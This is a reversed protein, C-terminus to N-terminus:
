ARIIDPRFPKRGREVITRLLDVVSAHVSDSLGDVSLDVYGSEGDIAGCDSCERIARIEKDPTHLVEPKDLLVSLVAAIGYAAWNSVTAIVPVDSKMVPAIGSKCPCQCQRGYQFIEMMTEKLNGTGLENAADGIGITFIGRARAEEFLYDIKAVRHSIDYGRLNHYYGKMNMAPREISVVLSPQLRDILNKAEMRATKEEVPFPTVSASLRREKATRPDCLSFGLARCAAAVIGVISEETVLTSTVDFGLKFARALVAAGVPGDTEGILEPHVPYGTCILANDGKKLHQQIGQAAALSIPRGIETRAADYLRHVAGLLKVNMEVTTLRDIEEAIMSANAMKM